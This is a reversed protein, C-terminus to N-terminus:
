NLKNVKFYDEAMVEYMSSVSRKQEKAVDEVKKKTDPDITISIREKAM